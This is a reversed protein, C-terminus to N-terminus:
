KNEKNNTNHDENIRDLVARVEDPLWGEWTPRAPLLDDTM